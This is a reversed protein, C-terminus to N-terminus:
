DPGGMEELAWLGVMRGVVAVAGYIALNNITNRGSVLALSSFIATGYLYNINNLLDVLAKSWRAFRKHAVVTYPQRTLDWVLIAPQVATFPSPSPLPAHSASSPQFAHIHLSLRMCVVSLIHHYAGFCVWLVPYWDTWCAWSVVSKRGLDVSQYVVVAAGTGVLVHALMNSAFHVWSISSNSSTPTRGVSGYLGLSMSTGKTQDQSFNKQM